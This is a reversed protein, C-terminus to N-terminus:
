IGWDEKELLKKFIRYYYERYKRKSKLTIKLDSNNVKM